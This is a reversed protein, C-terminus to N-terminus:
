GALLTQANKIEPLSPMDTVQKIKDMIKDMYDNLDNLLKEMCAIYPEDREVRIITRPLEPHFSIIDVFKRESIFLQGQLQPWYARDIKGTLLYEVQVAPSPCKCELLGDNGVLRDPSAGLRGANDTIFGVKKVACTNEFEYYDVADQEMIMGREMHHSTYTDVKRGLCREAILHYAYKQWSKSPEGEPTIVKNFNSSTPLGLRLKDYTDDYQECYFYKAM